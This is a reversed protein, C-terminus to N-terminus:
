YSARAMIEAHGILYYICIDTTHVTSTEFSNFRGVKHKELDINKLIEVTRQVAARVIEEEYSDGIEYVLTLYAIFRDFNNANM